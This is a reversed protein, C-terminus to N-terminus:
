SKLGAAQKKRSKRDAKEGAFSLLILLEHALLPMSALVLLEVWEFVRSNSM